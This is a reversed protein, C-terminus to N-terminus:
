EDYNGKKRSDAVLYVLFAITAKEYSDLFVFVIGAGLCAVQFLLDIGDWCLERWERLQEKRPDEAM